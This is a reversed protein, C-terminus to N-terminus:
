LKGGPGGGGCDGDDPSVPLVVYVEHAGSPLYTLSSAGSAATILYWGSHTAHYLIGNQNTEGFFPRVRVLDAEIQRVTVPVCGIRQGTNPDATIIAFTGLPPVALAKAAYVSLVAGCALLAVLLSIRRKSM